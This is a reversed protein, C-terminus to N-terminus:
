YHHRKRLAQLLEALNIVPPNRRVNRAQYLTQINTRITERWHPLDEIMDATFGDIKGSFVVFDLPIGFDVCAHQIEKM